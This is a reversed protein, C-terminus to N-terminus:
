DKGIFEGNAFNGERREGNAGAWVGQGHMKNDQFQGEYRDGNAFVLIGMGQCKGNIFNGECRDGGWAFVNTVAARDPVHM